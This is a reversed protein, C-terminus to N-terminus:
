NILRVTNFWDLDSRRYRVSRNVKIYELKNCHKCAWVALTGPTSLIYKSARKRDYLRDEPDRMGFLSYVHGLRYLVTRGDQMPKLDICKDRDWEIITEPKFAIREALDERGIRQDWIGGQWDCVPESRCFDTESLNKYEHGQERFIDM